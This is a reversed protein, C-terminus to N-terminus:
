ERFHWGFHGGPTSYPTTGASVPNWRLLQHMFYTKSYVWAFWNDDGISMDLKGM